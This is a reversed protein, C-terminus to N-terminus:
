AMRPPHAQTETRGTSVIGLPQERPAVVGQGLAEGERLLLDRPVLVDRPQLALQSIWVALQPDALGGTLGDALHTEITQLHAHALHADRHRRLRSSAPM